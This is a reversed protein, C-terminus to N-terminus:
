AMAEAQLSAAYSGTNSSLHRVRIRQDGSLAFRLQFQSTQAPATYLVKQVIISTSDVNSSTASEVIWVAASSGGLFANVVYQRNPGTSEFNTRDLEALIASTSPNSAVSAQTSDIPKNGPVYFM